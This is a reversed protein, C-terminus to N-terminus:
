GERTQGRHTLLMSLGGVVIFLPWSRDLTLWHNQDLLMIVGVALWWFGPFSRGRRTRVAQGTRNVVASDRGSSTLQVLGAVILLVPWMRAFTPHWRWGLDWGLRDMFFLAGLAILAIGIGVRSAQSPDRALPAHESEQSTDM